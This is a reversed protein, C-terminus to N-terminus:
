TTPLSLIHQELIALQRKRYVLLGMHAHLTRRLNRGSLLLLGILVGGSADGGACDNNRLAKTIEVVDLVMSSSAEDENASYTSTIATTM